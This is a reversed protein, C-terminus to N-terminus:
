VGDTIIILYTYYILWLVWKEAFCNVYIKSLINIQKKFLPDIEVVTVWPGSVTKQSYWM